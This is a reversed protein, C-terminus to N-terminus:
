RWQPSTHAPREATAIAQPAASAGAAYHEVLGGISGLVVFTAVFALTAFATRQTGTRTQLRTM